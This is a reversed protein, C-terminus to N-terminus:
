LYLERVANMFEKLIIIIRLSNIVIITMTVKLDVIEYMDGQLIQRVTHLRNGKSPNFPFFMHIYNM